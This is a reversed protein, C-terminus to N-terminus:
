GAPFTFYVATGKGAFPNLILNGELATARTKMNTLGNGKKVSAPNFGSGNDAITIQVMSNVVESKVQLLTCGSYKVANNIAEKCVLLVHKRKNADLSVRELGKAMGIEMQIHLPECVEAAFEHVRIMVSELNDNGPNVSWVIDSMSEMTSSAYQRIKELQESVVAPEEKKALAIRSSIDIVSLASGVDDHLDGAIQNRLLQENLKRKIRVRNLLLWGIAVSTVFLLGFLYQLLRNKRNGAEALQNQTKLLTIESEKKELEFKEKLENTRKIQDSLDISDKLVAASHLWQYAKQWSNSEGYMESLIKAVDYQYNLMKLTDSLQYAERLYQEAETLRQLKWLVKGINMGEYAIDAKNNLKKFMFYANTYHELAKGYTNTQYYTEALHEQVMASQYLSEPQRSLIANCQNLIFLSSDPLQLNRYLISLSIGTSIYRFYDEIHLFDALARNLYVAARKYDKAERYVVGLQRQVNTHFITNNTAICLSDAQTLYQIAYAIKSQRTYVESINICTRIVGATDRAKGFLLWATHLSNVSSDLFGKHLYIWGLANHINAVSRMSTSATSKSLLARALSFASDSYRSSLAFASDAQAFLLSDNKENLRSQAYGNIFSMFLLTITLRPLM